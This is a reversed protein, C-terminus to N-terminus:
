KNECVGAFYMWLFGVATHLTEKQSQLHQPQSHQSLEKHISLLHSVDDDFLKIRIDRPLRRGVKPLHLQTGIYNVQRSGTIKRWEEM